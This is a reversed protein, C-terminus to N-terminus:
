NRQPAASITPDVQLDRATKVMMMQMFQDVTGLANGAVGEAGGNNFVTSPVNIKSAADAWVRQAAVWADLKQALAGDATLIAEKAYAEADAAVTVSEADIRARDLNIAATQKAIEAEERVREAEILSLKKTTEANTTKEIQEVKAAAQRKAIDTEGQQIALLRQEEQELRQERAVVRRSAASKRDNIQEEYKDDPDLNELIASAVTVGIETFDHKIRMDNGADDTIKEIMIRRVETDGVESTDAAVDSDSPTARNRIVGGAQNLSVQRVQARGKELADKFESKFQDRKGGSYYEEMTFMNAVSDLSATVAPKLTTNILREPSRFTRAMSLFQEEEQPIGFRTTQTVDGTWNDALRVRYPAAISGLFVTGANEGTADLTHAVTIYHPWATSTGWGAFYWGTECTSTENGFITRTHQCFGADNYGVAGGFTFLIGLVGTVSFAINRIVRLEPLTLLSRIVFASIVLTIGLILGFMYKEEQKTQKFYFCCLVVM